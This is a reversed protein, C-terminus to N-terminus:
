RAPPRSLWRIADTHERLLWEPANLLRPDQSDRQQVLGDLYQRDLELRRRLESGDGVSGHGPILVRVESAVGDFLDLAARYDGVPDAADLDLLPVEIDSLMDGAVLVGPEALLLAAHGAAHARHELVQVAGWPPPLRDAGHPLALVAGLGTTDTGPASEVAKRENSQQESLAVAAGASTAYRPVDGLTPRWLLHDWHPHTSFGATVRRQAATLEDAMGDIEQPLVGPDVILCGGDPGVVVTTTTACFEHTAVLVGDTVPVLAPM